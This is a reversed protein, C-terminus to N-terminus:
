PSRGATRKGRGCPLFLFAAAAASMLLVGSLMMPFIGPGGVSPIVWLAVNEVTLVYNGVSDLSVSWHKMAPHVAPTVTGGAVSVLIEETLPQYGSPTVIEQIQYIGAPLGNLAVLGDAGVPYTGYLTGDLWVRFTAGTIPRGAGDTKRLVLGMDSRNVVSSVASGTGDYIVASGGRVVVRYLATDGRYGAPAATERLYYTGPPLAGFIAFGAGDSVVQATQILCDPDSYLTFEAGALPRGREDTKALSLAGKVVSNNVGLVAHAAYHILGEADAWVADEGYDAGDAGSYTPVDYSVLYDAYGDSDAGPDYATPGIMVERLSYAALKGDQFLPLDTWTYSWGGAETLQQTYIPEALKAGNRWLEVTVDQRETAADWRKNVTVTLLRRSLNRLTILETDAGLLWQRDAPSEAPLGEAAASYALEGNDTVSLRIREPGLYGTPITETLVYEGPELKLYLYGNLDTLVTNGHIDETYGDIGYTLHDNTYQNAGPKRWLEPLTGDANTIAFPVNGMGNGTLADVKHLTLLGSQVYLNQFAATQIVDDPVDGPYSEATVAVGAAPDYALWGATQAASNRIAYQCTTHWHAGAPLYDLERLTYARGQRAPVTWTYTGTAADYGTYGAEGAGSVEEAPTLLLRFDETEAGAETHTVSAYWTQKVEEIAEDDGAFTKQVTIRAAKAVLIGDLHWGDSHEYKLAYWRVKFHETTLKDVPVTEDGMTIQAGVSRLYALVVEDSPLAELTVGQIDETVARRLQADVEYATDSSTPPAILLYDGSDPINEGGFVRAAFISPTFDDMSISTNFGNSMNDAIECSANVYFNASIMRGNDETASWEAYLTLVGGPALLALEARTLTDGPQLITDTTGVRWGRFTYFGHRNNSSSLFVKARDTDPSLVTYTQASEGVADLFPSGGQVTADEVITQAAPLFQGVKVLHGALTPNYDVTLGETVATLVVGLEAPITVTVTGAAADEAMDLTLEAGTLPDSAVWVGGPVAPLTVTGGGTHFLYRVAPVEAATPYVLHLPDKVEVSYYGNDELLQADDLAKVSTFYSSSGPVNAPLYYLRIDTRFSLPICWEGDIQKPSTDAWVRAADYSDTHPLTVGGDFDAASFGFAGFVEEAEAATIYYRASGTYSSWLKSTNTTYFTAALTWRGNVAAYCSVTAVAAARDDGGSLATEGDAPDDSVDAGGDAGAPPSDPDGTGADEAPDGPAEASASGDEEPQVSPAPEPADAARAASLATWPLLAALLVLVTLLAALRMHLKPARHLNSRM